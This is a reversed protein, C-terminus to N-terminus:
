VEDVDIKDIQFSGVGYFEIDKMAWEFAEEETAFCVLERLCDQDSSEWMTVMYEKM